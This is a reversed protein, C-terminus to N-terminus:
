RCVSQQSCDRWDTASGPRPTAMEGSWVAATIRQSTTTAAHAALPAAGASGATPWVAGGAAWAMLPLMVIPPSRAAPPLPLLTAPALLPEIALPLLPLQNPPCKDAPKCANVRSAASTPIGLSAGDASVAFSVAGLAACGIIRRAAAAPWPRRLKAATTPGRVLAVTPTGSAEATAAKGDTWLADLGAETGTEGRVSRSPPSLSAARRLAPPVSPAGEELAPPDPACCRALLGPETPLAEMAAEVAEAAAEAAAGAASRWACGAAPWRLPEATAAAFRLAAWGALPPAACGTATALLAAPPTTMAPPEPPAPLAPLRLPLRLTDLMVRDAAAATACAFAAAAM